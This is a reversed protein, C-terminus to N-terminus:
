INDIMSKQQPVVVQNSLNLQEQWGSFATPVMTKLDILPREDALSITPRLAAALVASILMLALLVINKLSAKM